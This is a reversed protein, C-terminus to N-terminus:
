STVSVEEKVTDSTELTVSWYLVSAWNRFCLRYREEFVNLTAALHELQGRTPRYPDRILRMKAEKLTKSGKRNNCPRCAPVVNDWDTGGGKSQPIVHEFTLESTSFQEGCYQCRFAYALFLAFRNFHAPKHLARRKVFTRLMLVSPLRMEISPSRITRDYEAIVTHTGECVGKVSDQWGIASLPNYSLPRFDANLVLAPYHSLSSM